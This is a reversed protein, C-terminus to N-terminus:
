NLATPWRLRIITPVPDNMLAYLSSGAIGISTPQFGLKISGLYHGDAVDYRDLIAKKNPSSGGFLANVTKGAVLLQLVAESAAPDVRIMTPSGGGGTSFSRQAPFAIKEIGDISYVIKGNADVRYIQSSWRFATVIGGDETPQL